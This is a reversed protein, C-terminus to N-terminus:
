ERVEDFYDDDHEPMLETYLDRSPLVRKVVGRLAALAGQATHGVLLKLLELKAFRERQERFARVWMEPDDAVELTVIRAALPGDALAHIAVRIGAGLGLSLEGLHVDNREFLPRLAFWHDDCGAHVALSEVSPPLNAIGALAPRGLVANGDCKVVLKRLQTFSALVDLQPPASYSLIALERLKAPRLAELAEAIADAGNFRIRAETLFRGSPHALVARVLQVADNADTLDLRRIFGNRWTFPSDDDPADFHTLEGILQERHRALHKRVSPPAKDAGDRAEALCRAILEGRPHGRSQLWDGYVAAVSADYPDAAFAAELEPNKPEGTDIVPAPEDTLEWGAALKDAVLKDHQVKAHTPSVFKRTSQKGGDVIVLKAGDQAIEWYGDGSRLRAM